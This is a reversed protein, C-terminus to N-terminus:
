IPRYIVYQVRELQNSFTFIKQLMSPCGVYNDQHDLMIILDIDSSIKMYKLLVM